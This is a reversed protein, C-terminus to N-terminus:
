VRCHDAHLQIRRKSENTTSNVGVTLLDGRAGEFMRVGIKFAAPFALTAPTGDTQARDSSAIQDASYGGPLVIFDSPSVAVGRPTIVRIRGSGTAPPVLMVLATATAHTVVVQSGNLRVNNLVPVTEFNSGLVTVQSGAAAVNPLVATIM